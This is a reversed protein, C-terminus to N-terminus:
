FSVPSHDSGDRALHYAKTESFSNLFIENGFGLDLREQIFEEGKRGNDWTFRDGEFMVDCLACRDLSDRFDTMHDFDVRRGGEKDELNIVQNFDRICFWGNHAEEHLHELIAWTQRKDGRSPWGYVCTLRWTVNDETIDMDVHHRTYSNM